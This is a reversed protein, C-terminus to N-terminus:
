QHGPASAPRRRRDVQVFAVDPNGALNAVARGAASADGAVAVVDAEMAMTRLHRLGSGSGAAKEIRAKRTLASKAGDPQLKIILRTEEATVPAAFLLAVVAIGGIAKLGHGFM